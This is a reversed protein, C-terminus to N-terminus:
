VGLVDLPTENGHASGLYMGQAIEDAVYHFPRLQSNTVGNLLRWHIERV